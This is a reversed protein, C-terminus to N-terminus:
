AALKKRRSALWGLGGLGSGFLWVAAPLPVVPGVYMQHYAGGGATPFGPTGGTPIEPYPGDESTPPWYPPQYPEPDPPPTQHNPPPDPYWIRTRDVVEEKKLLGWLARAFVYSEDEGTVQSLKLGGGAEAIRGIGPLSLGAGLGIEVTLEQNPLDKEATASLEFFGGLPISTSGSVKGELASIKYGFDPDIYEGYGSNQFEEGGYNWSSTYSFDYDETGSRQTM